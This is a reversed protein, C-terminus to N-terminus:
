GRTSASFYRKFGSIQFFSELLPKVSSLKSLPMSAAMECFFSHSIFLNIVSNIMSPKAMDAQPPPDFPTPLLELLTMGGDTDDVVGTLLAVLTATFAAMTAMNLSTTSADVMAVAFIASAFLLM